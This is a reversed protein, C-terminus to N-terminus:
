SKPQLNPFIPFEPFPTLVFSYFLLPERPSTFGASLLILLIRKVGRRGGRSLM